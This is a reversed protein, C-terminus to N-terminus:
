NFVFSKNDNTIKLPISDACFTPIPVLVGPALSITTPSLPAGASLIRLSPVFGIFGPSRTLSLPRTPIPVIVGPALNITMPCSPAGVRLIRCSPAEGMFGAKLIFSLPLTPMPVVLGPALNITTPCAPPGVRLISWSPVLGIFGARLTLSSPLTPIPVVAGVELNSTLPISVALLKLNVLPAAAPATSVASAFPTAVQCVGVVPPDELQISLPNLMNDVLVPFTPIPVLVGPALSITTPLGPAGANFMKFSPDLGIFGASLTLSLPLTPM